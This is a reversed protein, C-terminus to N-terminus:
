KTPDANTHDQIRQADRGARVCAAAIRVTLTRTVESLLGWGVIDGTSADAYYAAYENRAVKEALVQDAANVNLRDILLRVSERIELGILPDGNGLQEDTIQGLWDYIFGNHVPDATDPGPFPANFLPVKIEDLAANVAILAIMSPTCGSLSADPTSNVWEALAKSAATIAEHRRLESM